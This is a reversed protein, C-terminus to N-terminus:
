CRWLVGFFCLFYVCSLAVLASFASDCTFLRGDLVSAVVGRAGWQHVFYRRRCPSQFRKFFLPLSFRVRVMVNELVTVASPAVDRFHFDNRALWLFYKSVNLMYVFVRPVCRLEDRNFGFLVHCCLLSPALPSCRFMLSYLWSLVSQALPCFLVVPGCFCDTPVAYGFSSLREATYLVSLAVKWSLDIVPRDMDFWHLQDWTLPWYLPGYQWAFKAVCHPDSRHGSLLYTYVSKTSVFSVPTSVLGSSAGIVLTVKAVSFAGDVVKWAQLLDRCFPPLGGPDFPAPGSLVDWPFQGFCARCHFRFFLVWGSASVLLHRVWQVLLAHVKLRISVVGFGRACCPQVVVSRAVLDVKGKWFFKFVLSNLERVVWDPVSIVSALYWIRSLGLANIVLARGRYSM